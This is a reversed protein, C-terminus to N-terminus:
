IKFDFCTFQSMNSVLYIPLNEYLLLNGESFEDNM